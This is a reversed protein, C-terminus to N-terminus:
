QLIRGAHLQLLVPHGQRQMGQGTLKNLVYVKLGELIPGATLEAAPDNTKARVEALYDAKYQPLMNHLKNLVSAANAIRRRANVYDPWTPAVDL